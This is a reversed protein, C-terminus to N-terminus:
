QDGTLNVSNTNTAAIASFCGSEARYDLFDLASADSKVLEFKPMDKTVLVLQESHPYPLPHLVTADFVSFIATNAAIGIALTFVATLAFWPNKRLLRVAYRLHDFM